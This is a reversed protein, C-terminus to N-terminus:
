ILQIIVIVLVGEAWQVRARVAGEDEGGGDAGGAFDGEDREGVEAEEGPVGEVVAGADGAVLQFDRRLHNPPIMQHLRERPHRALLSHHPIQAM